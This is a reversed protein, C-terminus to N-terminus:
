LQPVPQISHRAHNKVNELVIVRPHHYRIIRMIDFFLTGRTDALGLKSSSAISFPQCPFGACLIDHPPIEKEHIQRIDGDPMGGFNDYYVKRCHKDIEISYLCEYGINELGLRFGGIGAFLDVFTPVSIFIM